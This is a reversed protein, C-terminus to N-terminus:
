KPRYIIRRVFLYTEKQFLNIFIWTMVKRWRKDQYRYIEKLKKRFFSKDLCTQPMMALFAKNNNATKHWVNGADRILRNKELDYLLNPLGIFRYYPARNVWQRGMPLRKLCLPFSIYVATYDRLGFFLPFLFQYGYHTSNDYECGRDWVERLFLLSSLFGMSLYFSNIYLEIDTYEISEKFYNVNNSDVPGLYDLEKEKARLFNFHFLGANPYRRIYYLLSDILFPSPIDDDGWLYVYKGSANSVSRYISDGIPVKDAYDIIEFFTDNEQIQKLIQLTNDTSGNNCVIFDVCDTNRKIQDKILNLTYSLYKAGNHVPLIISIVKEM